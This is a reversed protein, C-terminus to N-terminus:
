ASYFPTNKLFSSKYRVYVTQGTHIYGPRIIGADIGFMPNDKCDNRMPGEPALRFGRLTKLPEVSTNMKGDSPDITTMVCRLCPQLSQFVVDGIHITLWNDEDFAACKDIFIIPRFRQIEVKNELRTNLADLSPQTNIMYPADDAFPTKDVRLPIELNWEKREIVCGRNSYLGKRHMLLRTDPEDLIESLFASVEEGCDLGETREERFLRATRVDNRKMVEEIKVNISKEGKYKMTLIGDHVDCEILVMCPKQRGTYFRGDKGNIIIFNRDLVEGAVPGTESCYISFVEKGKCSKVPYVYLGKVIGVPILPSQRHRILKVAYRAANYAIVSGGIIGFLLKKDDFM